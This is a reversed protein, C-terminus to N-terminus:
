WVFGLFRFFIKRRKCIVSASSTQPPVGRKKLSARFVLPALFTGASPSVVGPHTRPRPLTPVRKPHQLRCWADRTTVAPTSPTNISGCAPVLKRTFARAPSLMSTAARCTQCALAPTSAPLHPSTVNSNRAYAIQVLSGSPVVALSPGTPSNLRARKRGGIKPGELDEDAVERRNRTLVPM